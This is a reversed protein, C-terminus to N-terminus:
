FQFIIQYEDYIPLHNQDQLYEVVRRGKGTRRYNNVWRSNDDLAVVCGPKLHPEITQFERLHHDASATDDMWDVDWSDLYFLDVQNLDTQQALWAVSDSQEVSFNASTIHDRATQCAKPDIDVSRMWGGHQDVFETFLKASQGDVWNGPTRLTGTEVIGFNSLKQNLLLRFIIDFGVARNYMGSALVHDNATFRIDLLPYHTKRYHDLWTSVLTEKWVRQVCVM